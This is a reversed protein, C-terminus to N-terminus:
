ITAKLEEIYNEADKFEFKRLRAVPMSGTHLNHLWIKGKYIAIVKCLCWNIGGREKYLYVKSQDVSMCGGNILHFILDVKLGDVIKVDQIYSVEVLAAVFLIGMVVKKVIIM